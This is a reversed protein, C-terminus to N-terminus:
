SKKSSSKKKTDKKKTNQIPQENLTVEVAKIREPDMQEVYFRRTIPDDAEDPESEEYNTFGPMQLPCALKPYDLKSYNEGESM